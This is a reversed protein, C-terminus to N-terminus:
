NLEKALELIKERSFVQCGVTVTQKDGAVIATYEKNLKVEVSRKVLEFCFFPFWWEGEVEMGTDIINTITVEKGIWDNLEQFYGCNAGWEHGKFGRVIKVRDGEKFGSLKQMQTYLERDSLEKAEKEEDYVEFYHCDKGGAGEGYNFTHEGQIHHYNKGDKFGMGGVGKGAYRYLKGKIM